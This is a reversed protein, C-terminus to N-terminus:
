LEVSYISACFTLGHAYLYPLFSLTVRVMVLLRVFCWRQSWFLLNADACGTPAAVFLPESVKLIYRTIIWSYQWELPEFRSHLADVPLPVLANVRMM